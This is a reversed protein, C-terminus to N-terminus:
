DTSFDVWTLTKKRKKLRPNKRKNPKNPKEEKNLLPPVVPAEQDLLSLDLKLNDKNASNTSNNEQFHLFLSNSPIKTSKKISPRSSNRLTM